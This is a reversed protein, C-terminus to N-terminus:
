TVLTGACTRRGTPDDPAWLSVYRGPLGLRRSKRDPTDETCSNTRASWFPPMAHRTPRKRPIGCQQRCRGFEHRAVSLQPVSQAAFSVIVEM